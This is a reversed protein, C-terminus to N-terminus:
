FDNFSQHKRNAEYRGEIRVCRLSGSLQLVRLLLEPVLTKSNLIVLKELRRPESQLLQCLADISQETVNLKLVTLLSSEEPQVFAARLVGIADRELTTSRIHLVSVGTDKVLAAIDFVAISGSISLEPVGSEKLKLRIEGPIPEKGTVSLSTKMRHRAMLLLMELEEQRFHPNMSLMKVLKKMREGVLRHRPSASVTECDTERCVGFVALDIVTFAGIDPLGSYVSKPKMLANWSNTTRDGSFRLETEKYGWACYGRPVEGSNAVVTASCAPSPPIFKFDDADRAKFGVVANADKAWSNSPKSSDRYVEHYGIVLEIRPDGTKCCYLVKAQQGVKAHLQSPTDGAKTDFLPVKNVRYGRDELYEQVSSFDDDIDTM